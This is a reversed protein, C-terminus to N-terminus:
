PSEQARLFRFLVKLAIFVLALIGGLITGLVVILPRRPESRREPPVAPDIVAFAYEARANALMATNMTSEVLNYMGQRMDVLDTRGIQENLYAINREADALERQRLNANALAVLGNAWEAAVVPDSWAVSLTILGTSQDRTINVVEEGFKKTGIWLTPIENSASNWDNQEPNWQESFLIPLLNNTRVFEELLTRSELYPVAINNDTSLAGLDIGALGALGGFRQAMAAAGGGGASDVPSVVTEARFVQPALLAYIISIVVALAGIGFIWRWEARLVRYIDMLTIEDPPREANM